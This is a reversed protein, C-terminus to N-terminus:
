SWFVRSVLDDLMKEFLQNGALFRVKEETTAPAAEPTTEPEPQTSSSADESVEKTETAEKTAAETAENTAQLYLHPKKFM